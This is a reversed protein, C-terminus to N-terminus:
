HAQCEQCPPQSVTWEVFLDLSPGCGAWRLSVPGGTMSPPAQLPPFSGVRPGVGWVVQQSIDVCGGGSGDDVGDTEVMCTHTNNEAGPELVQAM